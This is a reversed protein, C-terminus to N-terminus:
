ASPCVCVKSGPLPPGGGLLYDFQDIIRTPITVPTVPRQQQCLVDATPGNQLREADQPRCLPEPESVRYQFSTDLLHFLQGAQKVRRCALHSQASSKSLIQVSVSIYVDMQASSQCQVELHPSRLSSTCFAAMAKGLM